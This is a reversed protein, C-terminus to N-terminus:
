HTVRFEYSVDEREYVEKSSQVTVLTLGFIGKFRREGTVQNALLVMKIDFTSSGVFSHETKIHAYNFQIDIAIFHSYCYSNCVRLWQM